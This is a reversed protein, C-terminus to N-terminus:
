NYVKTPIGGGSKQSKERINLTKDINSFCTGSQKHTKGCPKLINDLCNNSVLKLKRSSKTMSINATKDTYGM